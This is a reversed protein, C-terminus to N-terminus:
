GRGRHHAPVRSLAISETYPILPDSKGHVLILRAPLAHLDKDALTLADIMAVTEDPLANILALTRAPDANTM